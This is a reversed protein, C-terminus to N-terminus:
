GATSQSLQLYEWGFVPLLDLVKISTSPSLNFARFNISVGYWLWCHWCVPSRPAGLFQAVFWLAFVAQTPPGWCIHLLPRGQRAEIPSSVDLAVSVQHLLTHTRGPPHSSVRLPLLSPLHSSSVQSFLQSCTCSKLHLYM